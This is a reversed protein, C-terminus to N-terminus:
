TVDLKRSVHCPAVRYANRQEPQSM